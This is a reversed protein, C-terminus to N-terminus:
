VSRWVVRQSMRGVLLGSRVRPATSQFVFYLSLLMCSYMAMGPNQLCVVSADERHQCNHTALFSCNFISLETGVCQVNDM